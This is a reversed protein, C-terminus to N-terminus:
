APDHGREGVREVLRPRSAEIEDTLLKEILSGGFSGGYHLSMVLTSEHGSGEVVADLVWASHDRGDLERREFRAHRGPDHVTRVMRLRKSRALPGIRGRLEVMWVPGQDGPASTALEVRPVITLWEPYTSLDEVQAFLEDPTCPAALEASLDVDTM